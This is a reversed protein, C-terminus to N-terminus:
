LGLRKTIYKNALAYLYAVAILIPVVALGCSPWFHTLFICVFFLVKMHVVYIEYSIGGLFSLLSSRLRYNISFLVFVCCFLCSTLYAFLVFGTTKFAVFSLLFLLVFVLSVKASKSLVSVLRAENVAVMVGLFFAMCSNSYVSNKLILECFAAYVVLLAGCFIPAFSESFLSFSVFHFIYFALIAYVFWQTSDYDLLLLRVGWQGDLNEGLYSAVFYAGVANAIIFPLFTRLFRKKVFQTLTAVRSKTVGYGSLFFFISVLLFGVPRFLFLPNYPPSKQAFHHLVIFYAALGKVCLATDLSIIEGKIKESIKVKFFPFLCVVTMALLTLFNHHAEFSIVNM